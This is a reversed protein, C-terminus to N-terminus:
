PEENVFYVGEIGELIQANIKVMSHSNIKFYGDNIHQAGEQGAAFEIAPSSTSIYFGFNIHYPNKAM